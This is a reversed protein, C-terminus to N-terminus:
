LLFVCEATLFCMRCNAHTRLAGYLIHERVISHARKSCFTNERQGPPLLLCVDLFCSSTINCTHHHSMTHYLCGPPLLLCVDLFCGTARRQDLLGHVGSASGTRQVVFRCNYFLDCETTLSCMRYYSFVNQIFEVRAVLEKFWSGAYICVYMYVYICVYMYVHAHVYMYVYMCICM